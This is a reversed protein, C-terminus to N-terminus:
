QSLHAAHRAITSEEDTPIVRLTLRSNATSITNANADNAAIDLEAGLWGLGDLIRARIEPANEGIGATFVIQDCGKLAAAMSGIARRARYCFLDVALEAAPTDAALVDRMDSSIGSVGLLGSKTSLLTEIADADMGKDRMLYLVVGPDLDGCRKGMMLGDLATFGMSTAQSIGNDMACLSAGHGLHLVISKGSNEGLVHAIYEYSLGHFGYRVVGAESLEQPIAYAQAVDPQTRHFGTDFCGVQIADPLASQAAAVGALNHPQHGPALPALERLAAIDTETLIQAAGFSQGGHVIRHGVAKIILDPYTTQLHGIVWTMLPEHADAVDAPRPLSAGELSIEAGDGIREILGKALRENGAYLAFKISSSGANLTLIASM